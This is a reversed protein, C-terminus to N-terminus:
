TNTTNTTQRQSEVVIIWAYERTLAKKKNKIKSSVFRMGL